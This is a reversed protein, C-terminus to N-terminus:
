QGGDFPSGEDDEPNARMEYTSVAPAQPEEVPEVTRQVEAVGAFPSGEDALTIQTMVAGVGLANAEQIAAELPTPAPPTPVKAPKSNVKITVHDPPDTLGIHFEQLMANFHSYQDLPIDITLRVRTAM